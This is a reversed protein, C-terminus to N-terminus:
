LFGVRRDPEALELTGSAVKGALESRSRVGLKRYIRTLHAEVTAVTTFLQAAAEKNTLGGAVLRAVRAEATTLQGDSRPRGGAHRIAAEVRELWLPAGLQEFIGQAGELHEVGQRRKGARRLAEGVLLLTRARDFPHAIAAFGAQAHSLAELAEEIQGNGLLVAGRSRQAAATAWPHRLAAAQRELGAVVAEAEELRDVAVLAEAADPAVPYVGPEFIGMGEILRPLDGLSECARDFEGM